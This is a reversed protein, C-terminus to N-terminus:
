RSGSQLEMDFTVFAVGRVFREALTANAMQGFHARQWPTRLIM